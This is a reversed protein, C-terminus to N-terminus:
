PTSNLSLAPSHGHLAAPAMGHGEPRLINPNYIQLGTKLHKHFGAKQKQEQKKGAMKRNQNLLLM